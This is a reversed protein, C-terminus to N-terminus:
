FGIPARVGFSAHLQTRDTSSQVGTDFVVGFQGSLDWGRHFRLIDLMLASMAGTGLGGEQEGAEDIRTFSLTVRGDHTYRDIAITGGGGGRVMPSGLLQGYQTHGQDIPSHEYFLNEGRGGAIDTVRSNTFEVRLSMLADTAAAPFVRMLGLTYASIHDPESILDRLNEAYDERAFEGYIEFGTHPLKVRVFASALQNQPVGSPDNGFLTQIPLTLDKASPGGDPWFRHFFRSGGIEVGPLGRPEFVAVVGAALQKGGTTDIPSWESQTLGGVFMRGHIKGIGIDVPTSTGLFLRPIGAANDGLIIPSTIAPGWIENATSAGIAIGFLDLRITSQGPDFRQYPANGFRQPLDINFPSVPDNYPAGRVNAPVPQLTFPVNEARFFIPDITVTLPGSRVEFGGSIASTIGRGAWIAGDNSGYPWGGNEIVQLQPRIPEISFGSVKRPAAMQSNWVDMPGHPLLSDREAASWGRLSVPAFPAYGAVQLVRLYQELESGTTMEAWSRTATTQARLAAAWLVFILAAGQGLARRLM